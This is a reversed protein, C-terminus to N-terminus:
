NKPTWQSILHEIDRESVTPNTYGGELLQAATPGLVKPMSPLPQAM